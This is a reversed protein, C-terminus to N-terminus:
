QWPIGNRKFLLIKTRCDMSCTRGRSYKPAVYTKGCVECVKEVDDLRQNRRWTSKCNNSCFRSKYRYPSSITYNKGCVECQKIVKIENAKGLSSAYNGKAWDSCEKSKHWEAALPQCREKFMRKSEAKQAAITSHMSLHLHKEILQLNEIDNNNSDHDIHHIHYGKPVPGNYKEWVYIHLRKPKNNITGLWYGRQDSYFRIGDYEIFRTVRIETQVEM